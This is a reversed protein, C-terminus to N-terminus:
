VCEGRSVPRVGAKARLLSGTSVVTPTASAELARVRAAEDVGMLLGYEVADAMLIAALKRKTPQEM